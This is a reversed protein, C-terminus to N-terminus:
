FDFLKMRENKSNPQHLALRRKGDFCTFCMSHGGDEDFIVRDFEYEGFIGNPSMNKAVMYGNKGITSWLLAIKGNEEYLYPGEAVYGKVDTGIEVAIGSNKGSVIKKPEGILATLDENLPALFLSGDGDHSIPTTWENSFCLYPKGQYLFLTADLCGWGAPTIYEGTLGKYEGDIRESVYIISGRGLDDRYVSLILYYKGRYKHLEPAWYDRYSDLSGDTILKCKLEFHELDTSTYLAAIGTGEQLNAGLTAILYYIGDEAFIFPDRIRLDERKIM